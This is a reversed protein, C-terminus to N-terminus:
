SGTSFRLNVGTESIGNNVEVTGINYKTQKKYYKKKPYAPIMWALTKDFSNRLSPDFQIMSFAALIEPSTTSISEILNYVPKRELPLNPDTVHVGCTRALENMDRHINCHMTLTIPGTGKWVTTSIILNIRAIKDEWDSTACHASIIYKWAAIGYRKNKYQTVTSDALSLRTAEELHGYLVQNDTTFLVHIHTVREVLESSISDNPASYPREIEVAPPPQTVVHDRPDFLNITFQQYWYLHDLLRHYNTGM